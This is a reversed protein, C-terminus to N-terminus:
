RYVYVIKNGEVRVKDGPRIRIYNMRLKGSVHAVVTQGGVDVKFKANPLAEIVKGNPGGEGANSKVGGTVSELEDLDLAEMLPEEPRDKLM